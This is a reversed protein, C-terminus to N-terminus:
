PDVADIDAEGFQLHQAVELEALGDVADARPNEKEAVENAFNRAVQQEFVDAGALGDRPDGEQPPDAAHRHHEDGRGREEVHQPEKEPDELGPEIGAHDQVEGVPVGGFPAGLYEAQEHRRGGQRADDAARQRAIAKDALGLNQLEWFLNVDADQRGDFDGFFANRGGGFGGSSYRLAVSPILFQPTRWTALVQARAERFYVSLTHM